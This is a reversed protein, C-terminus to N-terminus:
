GSPFTIEITDGVDGAGAQTTFKITHDSLEDAKLRSMTDSLATLAAQANYYSVFSGLVAFILVVVLLRRSNAKIKKVM